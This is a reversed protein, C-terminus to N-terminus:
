EQWVREQAATLAFPLSGVLRRWLAGPPNMSLGRQRGERQRRIALGLQLLLFDDFVLRRRAAESEGTTQPFHGAKVAAGLSLLRRRALLSPPLCEEVADAYDDILRKMLRRMPRQTLGRTLGYVPVLRGTHLTEDPGDDAVEFDKVKMQLPGGKYREVKGHVILREGRKLIRELYGQGFWIATLFGTGDSLVASLPARSHRPPAPSVGQISGACTRGDGPTVNRLPVLQSRDEHRAPLHFLADEVNELGM